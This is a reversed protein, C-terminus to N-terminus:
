GILSRELRRIRAALVALMKAAVGPEEVLLKDFARKFLRIAVVPTTATVTAQRPGGDLLALDGFFDGPGLKTLTRNGKTVKAEGDVIAYFAGGLMGMEVIREGTVFEVQDAHEALRRLHRKSLEAFLPVQALLAIGERGLPRDSRRGTASARERLGAGAVAEPVVGALRDLEKM